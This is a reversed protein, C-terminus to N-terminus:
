QSVAVQSGKCAKLNRLKYDKDSLNRGLVDRVKQCRRRWPLPLNEILSELCETSRQVYRTVELETAEKEGGNYHVVAAAKRLTGCHSALVIGAEIDEPSRTQWATKQDSSFISDYKERAEEYKSLTHKAMAAPSEWASSLNPDSYVALDRVIGGIEVGGADPMRRTLLHHAFVDLEGFVISTLSKASVFRLDLGYFAERITNLDHQSPDHNCGRALKLFYRGFRITRDQSLDYPKANQLSNPPLLGRRELELAIAASRSHVLAIPRISEGIGPNEGSSEWFIGRTKKQKQAQEILNDDPLFERIVVKEQHCPPSEGSYLEPFVRGGGEAQPLSLNMGLIAMERAFEIDSMDRRDSTGIVPIYHKVVIKSPLAVTCSSMYKAYAGFIISKTYERQGPIRFPTLEVRVPLGARDSSVRSYLDEYMDLTRDGRGHKPLDFKAM